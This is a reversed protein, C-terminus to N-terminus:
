LTVSVDLVRNPAKTGLLTLHLTGKLGTEGELARAAKHSLPLAAPLSQNYDVIGGARGLVRKGLGLRHAVHRSVRFAIGVRVRRRAEVRLHLGHARVSEVTQGPDVAMTVGKGKISGDSLWIKYDAPDPQADYSDVAIRYVHGRRAKFRITSGTGSPSSGFDSAVPKLESLSSGTYSNLATWAGSGGTDVTVRATHKARYRFWVSHLPGGGPEGLEVTAEALSGTMEQGVPLRAADTFADNTPPAAAATAAGAAAWTAVALVAFPKSHM